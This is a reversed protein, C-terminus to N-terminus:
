PVFCVTIGAVVISSRHYVSRKHNGGQIIDQAYVNLLHAVQEFLDPFSEKDPSSKEVTMYICFFLLDASPKQVVRRICSHV